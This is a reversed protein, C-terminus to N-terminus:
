YIYIYINYLADRKKTYSSYRTKKDIQRHRYTHQKTCLHSMILWDTLWM